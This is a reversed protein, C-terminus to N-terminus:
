SIHLIYAVYFYIYHPKYGAYFSRHWIQISGRKQLYTAGGPGYWGANVNSAIDNRDRLAPTAIREVKWLAQNQM